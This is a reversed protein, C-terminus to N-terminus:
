KTLVMKLTKTFLEGNGATANIRYFYVGSAYNSGDFEATYYNSERTDNVLSAVEQGTLDYVTIKVSSPKPVAYNIKTKPNFPNPYNQSISFSTPISNNNSSATRLNDGEGKSGTYDPPVIVIGVFIMVMSTYQNHIKFTHGNTNIVGGLHFVHSYVTLDRNFILNNSININNITKTIEIIGNGSINQPNIGNFNMNFHNVRNNPIRFEGNVDINGKINMNHISRAACHINLKGGQNVIIDSVTVNSVSNDPININIVASPNVIINPLVRGGVNLPNSCSVNFKISSSDSFFVKSSPTSVGYPDLAGTHNIVLSSGNEFYAANNIGSTTFINGPCAQILESGENFTIAHTDYSNINHQAEGTFVLSGQIAATANQKLYISLKPDNGQITLSSGSEVILDDDTSSDLEEDLKKIDGMGNSAPNKYESYKITAIDNKSENSDTMYENYKLTALDTTDENVTYENYKIDALESQSTEGGGGISQSSGDGQISIVKANGSSPTLKVQTNNKIILQGVTVQNVNNINVNTGSNFVLIDTSLGVQRTPNWNGAASFNSNVTGSWIYTTQSLSFSECIILALIIIITKM